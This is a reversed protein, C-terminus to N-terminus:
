APGGDPRDGSPDAAPAGEAGPARRLQGQHEARRAPDVGDRRGRRARLRHAHDEGEKSGPRKGGHRRDSSRLPTRAVDVPIM